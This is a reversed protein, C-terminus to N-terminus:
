IKGAAACANSCFLEKCYDQPLHKRFWQLSEESIPPRSTLNHMDSAVHSIEQAAYIKQLRRRGSDFLSRRMEGINSQLIAGTELFRDLNKRKWLAQYREFHATVMRFPSRRFSDAAMLIDSVPSDEAFEVLVNRGGALSLAKGESLDKLADVHYYIEQGPLIEMHIGLEKQSRIMAENCLAMITKASANHQWPLYHPTAIIHRVGADWSKKLMELTMDWNKAGDDIGPLIHTHIDWIDTLESQMSNM